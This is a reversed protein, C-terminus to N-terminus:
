PTYNEVETSEEESASASDDSDEDEEHDRVHEQRVAIDVNIELQMRIDLIMFGVTILVPLRFRSSWALKLLFLLCQQLPGNVGLARSVPGDM